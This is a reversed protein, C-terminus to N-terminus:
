QVITEGATGDEWPKVTTTTTIEGTKFTLTIVHNMGPKAGGSITATAPTSTVGDATVVQIKYEAAPLVMAQGFVVTDTTLTHSDPFADKIQGDEVKRIVIDKKASGSVTGHAYQDGAEGNFTHTIEADQENIKVTSITGWGTIAADNEAILEITVKSLLHRFELGVPTGVSSKDAEFYDSVILDTAGDITWTAIVPSSADAKTLTATRPYYGKLFSKTAPNGHYYQPSAFTITNGGLALTTATLTANIVGPGTGVETQATAIASNWNATAANEARLFAVDLSTPKTLIGDDDSEVSARTAIKTGILIESKIDGDSGGDIVENDKSCATALLALAFLLTIKTEKKM